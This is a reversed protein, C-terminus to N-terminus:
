SSGFPNSFRWCKTEPNREMVLCNLYPKNNANRKLDEVDLQKKQAITTFIESTPGHGVIMITIPRSPAANLEPNSGRREPTYHKIMKEFFCNSRDFYDHETGFSSLKRLMSQYRHDVHHGAKKWEMPEMFPDQDGLLRLPVNWSIPEFLFKEIRVPVNTANMGRLLNSASLVSRSAPSSYCYDVRFHQMALTRGRNISEEEGHRSIPPDFEYMLANSRRPLRHPLSPHHYAEGTPSPSGKFVIKYWDRGLSHDIREAHRFIIFRIDYNERQQQPYLPQQMGYHVQPRAYYKEKRKKEADPADLHLAQFLRDM